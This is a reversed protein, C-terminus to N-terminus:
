FGDICQFVRDIITCKGFFANVLANRANKCQLHPSSNNVLIGGGTPPNRCPTKIQEQQFKVTQYRMKTLFTSYQLHYQIYVSLFEM